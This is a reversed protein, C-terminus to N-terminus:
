FDIDIIIILPFTAHDRRAKNHRKDAERTVRRRGARHGATMGACAAVLAIHAGVVDRHGAVHQGTGGDDAVGKVREPLVLPKRDDLPQECAICAPSAHRRRCARALLRRRQHHM